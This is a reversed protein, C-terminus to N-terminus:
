TIPLYGTFYIIYDQISRAGLVFHFVFIIENAVKPMVVSTVLVVASLALQAKM